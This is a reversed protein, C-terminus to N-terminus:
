VLIDGFVRTLDEQIRLINEFLIDVLQRSEDNDYNLSGIAHLMKEIHNLNAELFGELGLTNPNFRIYNM